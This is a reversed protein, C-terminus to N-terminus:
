LDRTTLLSGNKLTVSGSALRPEECYLEAGFDLEVKILVQDNHMKKAIYPVLAKLNAKGFWLKFMNTRIKNAVLDVKGEIVLENFPADDSSYKVWRVGTHTLSGTLKKRGVSNTPELEPAIIPDEGSISINQIKANLVDDDPIASGLLQWSYCHV